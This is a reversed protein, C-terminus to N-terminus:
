EGPGQRYPQKKRFKASGSIMNAESALTPDLEIVKAADSERSLALVMVALGRWRPPWQNQFINKM